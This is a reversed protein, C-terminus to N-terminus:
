LEDKEEPTRVSFQVTPRESKSVLRSHSKRRRRERRAKPSLVGFWVALGAVILGVLLLVLADDRM